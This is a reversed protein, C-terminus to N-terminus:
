RSGMLQAAATLCACGCGLDGIARDEIDDYSSAAVNLMQAALHATTPHQEYQIKPKDFTELTQLACEVDRLRM